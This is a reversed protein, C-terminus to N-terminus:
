SEKVCLLTVKDPVPKDKPVYLNGVIGEKTEIKYRHFRKSDQEYKFQGIVEKTDEM